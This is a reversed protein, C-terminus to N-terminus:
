ASSNDCISRYSNPFDRLCYRTVFSSLASRRGEATVAGVDRPPRGARSSAREAVPLRAAVAHEHQPRQQRSLRELEVPLLIVLFRDFFGVIAPTIAQYGHMVIAREVPVAQAEAEMDPVEHQSAYVESLNLTLPPRAQKSSAAQV